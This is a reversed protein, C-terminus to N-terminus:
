NQNTVNWKYQLHYLYKWYFWCHKTKGKGFRFSRNVACWILQTVSQNTVAVFIELRLYKFLFSALHWRFGWDCISRAGYSLKRVLSITRNENNNSMTRNWPSWLRCPWMDRSATCRGYSIGPNRRVASTFLGCPARVSVTSRRYPCRVTETRYSILQVPAACHGYPLLRHGHPSYLYKWFNLFNLGYVEFITLMIIDFYALLASCLM